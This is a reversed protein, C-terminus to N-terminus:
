EGKHEVRTLQTLVENMTKKLKINEENIILLQTKLTKNEDSISKLQASTENKNAKFQQIIDNFKSVIKIFGCILAIIATIAPAAAIILTQVNQLIEQM